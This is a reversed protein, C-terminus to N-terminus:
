QTQRITVSNSAVHSRHIIVERQTIHSRDTLGAVSSQQQKVDKGLHSSNRGGLRSPFSESTSKRRDNDAWENTTAGSAGKQTKSKRMTSVFHETSNSGDTAAACRSSSAITNINRSGRSPSNKIEMQQSLNYKRDPRQATCHSSLTKTQCSPSSTNNSSIGAGKEEPPLSQRNTTQLLGQESEPRPAPGSSCIPTQTKRFGSTASTHRHWGHPQSLGSSDAPKISASNKNAPASCPPRPPAHPRPPPPQPRRVSASSLTQLTKESAESLRPSLFLILLWSFTVTFIVKHIMLLMPNLLM